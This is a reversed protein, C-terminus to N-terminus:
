TKADPTQKSFFIMSIFVFQFFNSRLSDNYFLLIVFLLLLFRAPPPFSFNEGSPKELLEKLVLFSILCVLAIGGSILLYFLFPRSGVILWEHSSAFASLDTTSGGKFAAIDEGFFLRQDESLLQTGVGLKTLRPIDEVTLDQGALYDQLFESTYVDQFDANYSDGKFENYIDAYIFVFVVAVSTLVLPFFKNKFRILCVMMLPVLLFTIKTENLFTPILFPSFALLSLLQKKVDNTQYIFYVIMLLLAITLVGSGGTGLTGGVWDGATSGHSLYQYISVPIQSFLFILVFRKFNKEFVIKYESCFVAHFIVFFCVFNALERLGSLYQTLSASDNNLYNILSILLLFVFAFVYRRRTNRLLSVGLATVLVDEALLITSTLQKEVSFVDFLFGKFASVYLVLLLITIRFKM